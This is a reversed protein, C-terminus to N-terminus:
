SARNVRLYDAEKPIEGKERCLDFVLPYYAIDRHM